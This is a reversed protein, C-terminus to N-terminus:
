PTHMAEIKKSQISSHTVEMDVPTESLPKVVYVDLLPMALIKKFTIELYPISNPSCPDPPAAGLRQSVNLM